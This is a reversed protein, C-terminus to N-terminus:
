HAGVGLNETLFTHPLGEICGTTLDQGPGSGIMCTESRTDTDTSPSVTNVINM